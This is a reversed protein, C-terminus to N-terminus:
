RPEERDVAPKRFDEDFSWVKSRRRRARAALLCDAIDCNTAGFRSLADLTARRARLRIGKFAVIGTLTRAIEIRPVRARKELVWITEAIVVDELEVREAGAEVRKLFSLARPSRVPDDGLLFRLLGSADLLSVRPRRTM